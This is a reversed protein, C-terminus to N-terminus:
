NKKLVSLVSVLEMAVGLGEQVEKQKMASYLGFMGKVPKAKSTDLTLMKQGVLEMIQVIKTMADFFGKQKLVELQIIADEFADKIIDQSDTKLEMLGGVMKLAESMSGMNLVFQRILEKFADADFGHTAQDLSEIVEELMPRGLPILDEKLEMMQDLSKVWKALSASSEAIQDQLDQQAELTAPLNQAGSAPAGGNQNVAQKLEAVEATLQDLKKLIQEELSM